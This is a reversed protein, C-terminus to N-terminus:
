RWDGAAVFAGWFYPHTSREQRRQKALIRLGAERVAVATPRGALRERYLEKMWSRTAEDEVPWLSMILTRAGAIEFARRLGLVGEGPLVRGVGTECASLVAWEVGSLDLAAIEEATLVGDEADPGAPPDGRRNAGALALGSSLLLNDWGGACDSQLFYGHTALHLIRRGPAARKLTAENAEAGILALVETGKRKWAAGIEDVETLTALLPDFRISRVGACASSPGRYIPGARAVRSPADPRADFDAGGLTLLGHGTPRSAPQALDREASLYHLTRTGELVYTGDAAPLTALSLLGLAGDPVVLVLSASRLRPVIPDWILSRLRRGKQEYEAMSAAPDTTGRPDAAVNARWASVLTEIEEANGLPVIVPSDDSARAVLALYWPVGPRGDREVLRKFRVYSVLASGAPLASLVDSLGVRARDRERRFDASREALAREAREERDRAEQLRRGYAESGDPGAGQLALRTFERRAGTLAQALSEARPDGKAPLARHRSAMEDLVMARARVMEDWASAVAATTGAGAPLDLLATFITDLGTVRAQEFRLAEEQSLSRACRAFQERARTEARLSEQLASKPDGRLWHLRALNDLSGATDPHGPGLVAERISLAREYARGAADLDGSDKLLVGFNNLTSALDPSLPGLTNEQIAVVREYLERAGARDGIAARLIAQNHLNQAVDPSEPGLAAELISSAREFLPRAGTTDGKALLFAALNDLSYAVEPHDPPLVKERIALARRHAAEAAANDGMNSLLVALNSVVNATLLSERGASKEAAALAREYLQRSRPYDGMLRLLSALNGLGAIVDPHEPPLAKERISLSRQLLPLAGAYDGIQALLLGVNNLSGAVSPDNPGLTKERIKLARVYLPRAGALDGTESLVNALANLARAVEPHEPGRARERIAVAREALLRCEPEAAKGGRWLSDVLLDLPDGSEISDPGCCRESEALLERALAEAARYDGAAILRRGEEITGTAANGVAGGALLLALLIRAARGARRV